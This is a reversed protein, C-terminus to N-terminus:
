FLVIGVDFIQPSAGIGIIHYPGFPYLHLLRFKQKLRGTIQGYSTSFTRITGDQFNLFVLDKRFRCSIFGVGSIGLNHYASGQLPNFSSFPIKYASVYGLTNQQGQSHLVVVRLYNNYDQIQFISYFIGPLTIWKSIAWEQGEASTFQFYQFTTKYATKNYNNAPIIVRLNSTLVLDWSYDCFLFTAFAFDNVEVSKM